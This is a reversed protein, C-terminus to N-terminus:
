FDKLLEDIHEITYRSKADFEFWKKYVIDTVLTPLSLLFELREDFNKKDVQNVPEFINSGYRALSAALTYMQMKQQFAIATTPKDVDLRSFIEQDEWAFRSRLVVKTSRISFETIVYGNQLLSDLMPLLEERKFAPPENEPIDQKTSVEAIQEPPSSVLEGIEEPPAAKPMAKSTAWPDKTSM